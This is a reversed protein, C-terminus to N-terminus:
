PADQLAALPSRLNVTAGVLLVRGEADKILFCGPSPLYCKANSLDYM